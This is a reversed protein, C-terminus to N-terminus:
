AVVKINARFTDRADQKAELPVKARELALDLARELMDVTQKHIGVMRADLNLRGIATLVGALDKLAANYLAVEARLQEGHDTSYRLRNELKEVLERLINKWERMEGTVAMLEAYPDSVPQAEALRTGNERIIQHARGAVQGQLLQLQVRQRKGPSHGKCYDGGIEAYERCAYYGDPSQHCRLAGTVAEAEALLDDPMHQLCFEMGEVELNGCPRGNSRVEICRASGLGNMHPM